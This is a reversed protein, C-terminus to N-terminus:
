CVVFSVFQIMAFARDLDWIADSIAVLFLM